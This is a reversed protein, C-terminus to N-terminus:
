LKRSSPTVEKAKVIAEEHQKLLMNLRNGRVVPTSAKTNMTPTAATTNTVLPKPAGFSQEKSANTPSLAPSSFASSFPTASQSINDVETADTNLTVTPATYEKDMFSNMVVVPAPSTSSGIMENETGSVITIVSAPFLPDAEETGSEPSSVESVSDSESAITEVTEVIETTTTTTATIIVTAEATEPAQMIETTEPQTTETETAIAASKVSLPQYPVEEESPAAINEASVSQIEPFEEEVEKLAAEQEVKAQREEKAEKIAEGVFAYIGAGAEVVKEALTTAVSSIKEKIEASSVSTTSSTTIENVETPITEVTTTTVPLTIETIEAEQRVAVNETLPVVVEEPMLTHEPPMDQVESVPVVAKDEAVIPASTMLSGNNVSSNMQSLTEDSKSSTLSSTPSVLEDQIEVTKQQGMPIATLTKLDNTQENKDDDVDFHWVVKSPNTLPRIPVTAM